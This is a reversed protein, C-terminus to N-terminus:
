GLASSLVDREDSYLRPRNRRGGSKRPDVEGGGSPKSCSSVSFVSFSFVQQLDATGVPRALV